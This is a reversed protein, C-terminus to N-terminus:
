EPLRSEAIESCIEAVRTSIFWEIMGEEDVEEIVSATLGYYNQAVLLMMQYINDSQEASKRFVDGAGECLIENLTKLTPTAFLLLGRNVSLPPLGYDEVEASWSPAFGTAAISVTDLLDQGFCLATDMDLGYRNMMMSPLESRVVTLLQAFAMIRENLVTGSEEAILGAATQKLTLTEESSLEELIVANYRYDYDPALLKLANLVKDSPKYDEAM